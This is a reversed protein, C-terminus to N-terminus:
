IGSASLEEDFEPWCTADVIYDYKIGKVLVM